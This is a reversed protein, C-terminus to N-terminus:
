PAKTLEPCNENLWRRGADPNVKVGRLETVGKDLNAKMSTCSGLRSLEATKVVHSILQELSPTPKCSPDLHPIVVRMDAKGEVHGLELVIVGNEPDYNTNMEANQPLTLKDCKAVPGEGALPSKAWAPPAISNSASVERAGIFAAGSLLTIGLVAFTTKLPRRALVLGEGTDVQTKNLLRSM